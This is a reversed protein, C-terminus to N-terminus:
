TKAEGDWRGLYQKEIDNVGEQGDSEPQRLSSEQASEKVEIASNYKEDQSAETESQNFSEAIGAKTIFGRNYVPMPNQM